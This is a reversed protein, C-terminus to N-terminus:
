ATFFRKTEFVGAALRKGNAHLNRKLVFDFLLPNHRRIATLVPAAAADIFDHEVMYDVSYLPMIGPLPYDSGNLLRAHWEGREIVSALAPGARNLQTMASIDGFVRGTYRADDMLRTFLAFSDSLPANAGRDLDRDTGMSACHAVVVRVGHDLARRLKLPNGFDQQDASVAGEMGAHTLLPVNLRAMAAYFADCRPLAPDIGMAGPLWKIARAGSRKAQELAAVADNRYPHISAAWEFYQPFAQAVRQAHSDPMYFTSGALSLAGEVRYARDFALLLVKAGPRMDQMLQRLRAVYSEDVSGSSTCAANLYFLRQAYQVPHLPSLMAPNIWAGSSSDGTGVLHTHCDWVQAPDVGDWAAQVLEHAALQPPLSGLCPNSIGQEPWYRWAGASAVAAACGGLIYRRRRRDITLPM